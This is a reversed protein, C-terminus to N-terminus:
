ESLQTSWARPYASIIIPRSPRPGSLKTTNHQGTLRAIALTACNRNLARVLLASLRAMSPAPSLAPRPRVGRERIDSAIRPLVENSGGVMGARRGRRVISWRIAM